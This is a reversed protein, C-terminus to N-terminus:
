VIFRHDRKTIRYAAVATDKEVRLCGSAVRTTGISHPPTAGALTFVAFATLLTKVRNCLAGFNGLCGVLVMVRYLANRRAVRRGTAAVEGCVSATTPRLACGAGIRTANREGKGSATIRAMPELDRCEMKWPRSIPAFIRAALARSCAVAAIRAASRASASAQDIRM